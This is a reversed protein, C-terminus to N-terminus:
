SNITKALIDSVTVIHTKELYKEDISSPPNVTDTIYLEDIPSQALKEQVDRVFLHHTLAVIIKKVNQTKLYQATQILTSGTSVFDDMILATKGSVDGEISVIDVKGTNLDRKKNLVVIPLNLTHAIKTTEKLAGVDPAVVCDIDKDKSFIDIFLPVASLHRIPISFFGQISENHLDFTIIKHPHACEIINTIVKASLPEGSRFIKDQISYGMWPIIVTIHHAGSRYLADMILSYEIIAKNPNPAFSQVLIVDSSVESKIWVRLEENPFKSLEIEGLTINTKQALKQALPYNTSGSFIQMPKNYVKQNM